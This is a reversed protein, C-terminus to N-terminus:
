ALKESEEKVKMLLNKLEEIEAMLTTDDAYRLNKINGGAIKIGAQTDDLRTNPMIYEAYDIIFEHIYTILSGYIDKSIFETFIVWDHRVKVSWPSYQGPIRWAMISSHTAKGKELTDEWGQSQVWTEWMAPPNKVLHAM